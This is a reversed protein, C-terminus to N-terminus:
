SSPPKDLSIEPFIDRGFLETSWPRRVRDAQWTTLIYQEAEFATLLPLEAVAIVECCSLGGKYRLASLRREVSSRTIGIKFLGDLRLYYLFAPSEALEPHERFLDQCYGGPLEGAEIMDDVACEWCRQGSLHKQASMTFPGHYSCDITVKSRRTLFTSRNSDPYAYRDGHREKSEAIFADYTRTRTQNRREFGCHPCGTVLEVLLHNHPLTRFAGHEPCTITIEGKTLGKWGSLDYAFRDGWRARARELFTEPTMCPRSRCAPRRNKGKVAEWCQPCGKSRPALHKDPTQQFAGHTPCVITSPTKADIYVFHTYDFRDGHTTRCRCLFHAQRDALRSPRRSSPATPILMDPPLLLYVGM